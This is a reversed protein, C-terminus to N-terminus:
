SKKPLFKSVHRLNEDWWEAPVVHCDMGASKAAELGLPSDDFVLCDKPAIGMSEAAALFLDPSPKVKQVSERTFIGNFVNVIALQRLIYDVNCRMGSSAVAMMQSKPAHILRMIPAIPKFHPLYSKLHFELSVLVAEWDLHCRHAANYMALSERFCRGGNRKFDEWHLPKPAKHDKLARNWAVFYIGMTDAITGDCDFIFARYPSQLYHELM